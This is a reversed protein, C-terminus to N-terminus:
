ERKPGEYDTTPHILGNRRPTRLQVKRGIKRVLAVYENRTEGMCAVHGVWRM